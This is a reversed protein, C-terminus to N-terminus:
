FTSAQLLNLLILVPWFWVINRTALVASVLGLILAVHAALISLWMASFGDQLLAPVQTAAIAVSSLLLTTRVSWADAVLAIAAAAVISHLLARVLIELSAASVLDNGMAPLVNWSGTSTCFALIGLLALALGVMLSRGIGRDPILVASRSRWSAVLLLIPALIVLRYLLAALPSDKAFFDAHAGLVAIAISLGIMLGFLGAQRWRQEVFRPQAAPILRPYLLVALWALVAVAGYATIIGMFQSM